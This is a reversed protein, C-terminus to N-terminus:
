RAEDGKGERRKLTEIEEMKEIALEHARDKKVISGFYSKGERRSQLIAQFLAARYEQKILEPFIIEGQVTCCIDVNDEGKMVLLYEPLEEAIINNQFLIVDKQSLTIEEDEHRIDYPIIDKEKKMVNTPKNGPVVEYTKLKKTIDGGNKEILKVLQYEVAKKAITNRIYEKRKEENRLTEYAEAYKQIQMQFNVKEQRTEGLENIDQDLAMIKVRTSPMERMKRYLEEKIMDEKDLKEEESVHEKVLRIKIYLELLKEFYAEEIDQETSTEPTKIGLQKFLDRNDWKM